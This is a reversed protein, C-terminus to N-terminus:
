SIFSYCKILLVFFRFFISYIKEVYLILIEILNCPVANNFPYIQFDILRDIM